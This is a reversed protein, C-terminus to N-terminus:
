VIRGWYKKLVAYISCNVFFFVGILCIVALKDGDSIFIIREAHYDGLDASIENNYDQAIFNYSGSVQVTQNAYTLSVSINSPYIKVQITENPRYSLKDTTIFVDTSNIQAICTKTIANFLDFAKLTCNNANNVLIDKGSLLINSLKQQNYDTARLTYVYYPAKSYNIDYSYKYFGFESDKFSLEISNSYNLKVRTTSGYTSLNVDAFLSNNYLKVDVKDSILINDTKIENSNYECKYYRKCWGNTWKCYSKWTYHDIRVSFLVNYDTRIESDKNLTINVLKGTGQMVNNVYINNSSSNTLISYTRKCDGQSTSPYSSAYYNSPVASQYNFGTLVSTKSPVYLSGNYLISPMLSFISAWANTVFTGNKTQVDVPASNIQLNINRKYVFDHDPFLKNSYDLNSIVLDKEVQTLNSNTINMCLDYNPPSVAKCDMALILPAQVLIILALGLLFLRKEM